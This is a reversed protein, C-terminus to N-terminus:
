AKTDSRAAMVLKTILSKGGASFIFWIVLLLVILLMIRNELM